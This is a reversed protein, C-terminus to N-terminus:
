QGRLCHSDLSCWTLVSNQFHRVKAKGDYLEMAAHFAGLWDGAQKLGELRERWHLLRGVKLGSPGLVFM